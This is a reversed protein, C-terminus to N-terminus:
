STWFKLSPNVQSFGNEKLWAFELRSPLDAVNSSSPVRAYWPFSPKAAFHLALEKLIGQIVESSSSMNILSFRAGDNDVYYFVRRHLCRDAWQRAAVLVPLVELATIVKMSQTQFKALEQENLKKGFFRRCTGAESNDIMVAGVTAVKDGGELAADTFILLPPRTDKAVLTRPIAQKLFRAMFRLEALLADPVMDGALQGTCRAKFTPMM